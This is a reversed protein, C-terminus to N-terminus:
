QNANGAEKLMKQNEDLTRQIEAKRGYRTSVSETVHEVTFGVGEHDENVLVQFRDFITKSALPSFGDGVELELFVEETGEVEESGWRGQKALTADYIAMEVRGGYDQTQQAALRSWLRWVFSTKSVGFARTLGLAQLFADEQQDELVGLNFEERVDTSGPVARKITLVPSQETDYRVRVEQKQDASRWYYDNGAQRHFTDALIVIDRCAAFTLAGELHKLLENQSHLSVEHVSKLGVLKYKREIEKGDNRM